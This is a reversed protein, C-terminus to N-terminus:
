HDNVFKATEPHLLALGDGARLMKDVLNMPKSRSPPIIGMMVVGSGYTAQRQSSETDHCGKKM